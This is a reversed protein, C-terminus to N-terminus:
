NFIWTSYNLEFDVVKGCVHEFYEEEELSGDSNMKLYYISGSDAAGSGDSVGVYLREPSDSRDFEMYDVPEKTTFESLVNGTIMSVCVIKNDYAYYLFDIDKSSVAFCTANATGTQTLDLKRIPIVRIYTESYDASYTISKQAAIMFRSGDDAEMVARIDNDFTTICYIMIAQMDASNFDGSSAEVPIMVGYNDFIFRKGKQDYFFADYGEYMSFPAAEYDGKIQPDYKQFPDDVFALTRNYVKGGVIAYEDSAWSAKCLCQMVNSAPAFYFLESFDMLYSFDSPEVLSTHNETAIAILGHVYEGGGIYFIGQPNKGVSEGNVKGYADRTVTNVVNIFTVEAEGAVDSLAMVGKSYLNIVSLNTESSYFVGSEKEKVIYRLIYDGVTMNVKVKLDKEFSLTDPEADNNERWAYWLYEYDDEEFGKEGVITVPITLVSDVEVTYQEAIGSVSLANLPTYDYNGKDKTCASGLCLLFCGIIWYINKM